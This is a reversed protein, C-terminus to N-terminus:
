PLSQKAPMPPTPVVERIMKKTCNKPHMRNTTFLPKSSPPDCVRYETENQKENKNKDKMTMGRRKTASSDPKSLLPMPMMM